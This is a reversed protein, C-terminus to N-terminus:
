ATMSGKAEVRPLLLPQSRATVCGHDCTVAVTYGASGVIDAVLAYADGYPYAFSQVAVGTNQQIAKKSAAVQM